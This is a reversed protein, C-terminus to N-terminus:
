FWRLVIGCCFDCIKGCFCFVHLLLNRGIKIDKTDKDKTNKPNKEKTNQTKYKEPVSDPDLDFDLHPDLYLTYKYICLVM